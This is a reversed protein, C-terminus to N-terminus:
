LLHKLLLFVRKVKVNELMYIFVRLNQFWDIENGNEFESEIINKANSKTM